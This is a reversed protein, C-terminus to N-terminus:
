RSDQPREISSRGPGMESRAIVLRRKQRLTSSPAPLTLALGWTEWQGSCLGGGYAAGIAPIDVSHRTNAQNAPAQSSSPRLHAKTSRDTLRGDPTATPREGIRSPPPVVSTLSM